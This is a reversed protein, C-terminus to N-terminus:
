IFLYLGTENQKTKVTNFNDKYTENEQKLTEVLGLATKLKGLVNEENLMVMVSNLYWRTKKAGAKLKKQASFRHIHVPIHMANMIQIFKGSSKEAYKPIPFQKM